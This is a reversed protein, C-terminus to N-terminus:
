AKGLEHFYLRPIMNGKKMNVALLVNKEERGFRDDRDEEETSLHLYMYTRDSELYSDGIDLVTFM